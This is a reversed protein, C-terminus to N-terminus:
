ILPKGGKNFPPPGGGTKKATTSPNTQAILECLLGYIREAANTVGLKKANEGMKEYVPNARASVLGAGVNLINEVEALLCEGTLDRELIMIGGGVDQVARGNYEQHNDTVNPSPILISARGLACVESITAAGCRMIVLDAAALALDMDYIYEQIKVSDHLPSGHEGTFKALNEMVSQYYNKGTGMLLQFELPVVCPDNGVHIKIMEVVSENLAKAGGSGGFSVVFPREDLGLKRRAETKSVRLIEPRIPNGTVETRKAKKFTGREDPFALAVIDAYKCLIKSTLGGLANSDHILTPIKLKAGAYVVPGSVYGGTGIIIDPKFKKIIKKSKGISKIIKFINAFNRFSLKRAFGDVDIFEINYRARPVLGAELGRRTGAFLFEARADQTKIYNAVALAPNIHGATGGGTFLIKLHKV